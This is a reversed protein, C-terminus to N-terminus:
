FVSHRFIVGFGLLRFLIIIFVFLLIKRTVNALDQRWASAGIEARKTKYSMFKSKQKDKHKDPIHILAHIKPVFFM